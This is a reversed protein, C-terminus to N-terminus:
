KIRDIWPSMSTTSTIYNLANQAESYKKYGGMRIRYYLQGDIIAQQMYVDYGNKRLRELEEYAYDKVTSSALQLTYKADVSYTVATYDSESRGSESIQQKDRVPVPAPEPRNRLMELYQEYADVPLDPEPVPAPDIDFKENRSSKPTIVSFSKQSSETKKSVQKKGDIYTTETKTYDPEKPISSANEGPNPAKQWENPIQTIVKKKIIPPATQVVPKKNQTDSEAAKPETAKKADEEAKSTMEKLYDPQMEANFIFNRHIIKGDTDKMALRVIYRGVADPIFTVNPHYNSPIFDRPDLRSAPPKTDFSWLYQVINAPRKFNDIDVNEGVFVTQKSSCSFVAAVVFLITLAKIYKVM